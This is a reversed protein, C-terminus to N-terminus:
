EDLTIVETVKGAKRKIDGEYHWACINNAHFALGKVKKASYSCPWGDHAKSVTTIKGYGGVMFEVIDGKKYIPKGMQQHAAWESGPYQRRHADEFDGRQMRKFFDEVDFEIKVKM